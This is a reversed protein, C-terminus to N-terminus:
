KLKEIEEQSLGTLEIIDEIKMSKKLMKQPIEINRENKGAGKGKAEGEVMGDAKGDIYGSYRINMEDRIAKLRLEYLERDEPNMALKELEKKAKEIEENKSEAM